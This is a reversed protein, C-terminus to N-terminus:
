DGQVPHRDTEDPPLVRSITGGGLVIEGDYLVVAQGPTIARQPSDFRLLVTGDEGPEATAPCARQRYRIKATVRRPGTLADIAGWVWDDSLLARSYLAAEPGVTLANDVMSKACVYLPEAASLSLGKHQGVTYRVAGRHQGLVQGTQDFIPGPVSLQGTYHELFGTYDGNPVFCIDQSDHKRANCFGQAEAISRVEPKTLGGLPFLTQRLQQQTMSALVYSQDRDADVAKGVALRGNEPIQFIRAYHGTAIHSIGLERARHLLAGFKLYRNCDICPNPTDGRAYSSVFKDLVKQAFVDSFNFVYYPIGLKRAVSRADEVDELACCTHGKRDVTENQYLKMTVGVCSYGQQCLLWAAVSSDVGGSMAVLVTEGM